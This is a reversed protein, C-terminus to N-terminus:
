KKKRIASLVEVSDSSDSSRRKTKRKKKKHKSDKDKKGKSSHRSEREKKVKSGHKKKKKKHKHDSLSEESSPSRKAIEVNSDGNKEKSASTSPVTPPLKPGFVDDDEVLDFVTIIKDVIVAKEDSQDLKKSTSPVQNDYAQIQIVDDEVKGTSVQVVEDIESDEESASSEDEEFLAKLLEWPPKEYHSSEEPKSPQERHEASSSIQTKNKDSVNTRSKFELEQETTRLGVNM